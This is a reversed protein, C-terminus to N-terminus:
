NWEILLEARLIGDGTITHLTQNGALKHEICIPTGAFTERKFNVRFRVPVTGPQMHEPLTDLVWTLYASNNIHGNFDIDRRPAILEATATATYETAASLDDEILAPCAEPINVRDMIRKFPMPRRTNIDILVWLLDAQALVQGETDLLEVFRRAQLAGAKGTNSRIHLEEKWRPRRIFRFDGQVEVWILGNRMSWDYGMDNAAAHTEAAEQCYQMFVDPKLLHNAGCEYSTVQHSINLDQM